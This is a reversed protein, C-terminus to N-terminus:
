VLMVAYCKALNELIKFIKNSCSLVIYYSCVGLNISFSLVRLKKQSYRVKDLSLIVIYHLISERFAEHILNRLLGQHKNRNYPNGAIKRCCFVFFTDGSHFGLESSAGDVKSNPKRSNSM